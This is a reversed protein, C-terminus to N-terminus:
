LSIEKLKKESIGLFAAVKKRYDTPIERVNNVWNSVLPDTVGLFKALDRQKFGKSLLLMKFEKINKTSM